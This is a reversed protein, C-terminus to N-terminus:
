KVMSWEAYSDRTEYLTLSNLQIHAPLQSRIQNRSFILLNEATPEFDFVVLEKSSFTNKSEEMYARSLMIKHDLANIVADQVLRKLEKFDIIIGLGDIFDEQIKNPLITVHL